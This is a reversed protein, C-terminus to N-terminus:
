AEHIYAIDQKFGTIGTVGPVLVPKYNMKFNNEISVNTAMVQGSFANSNRLTATCPTYFLVNVYADFNQNNGVSIDKNTALGSTPCSVAPATSIFHLQKVPQGSGYWNTRNGLDFGWDSIIALDDKILYTTTPTPTRFTCASGGTINVVVPPPDALAAWSTIWTRAKICNNAGASAAYCSPGCLTYGAGTWNLPVYGIEPFIQTPTVPVETFASVSGNITLGGSQDIDGLAAAAGEILGGPSGSISGLESLVSGKVVSPNEIVVDDRAWLNGWITLNADLQADGYPVYVNGQISPIGASITLDGNLVYVDGDNGSSGYIDFNNGFSTPGNALIAAGFGGYNPTLRMLTEITRPTQDAVTGTSSILAYSPYTTDSFTSCDMVTAGDAAYFTASAEFTAVSPGTDIDQPPITCDAALSVIPTTQLHQYWTNTGAEAANVSLLRQRDYGSSDLSHISQAVVIGSLMLVVFAVMLAVIMAVGDERHLHRHLNTIM